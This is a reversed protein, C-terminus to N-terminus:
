KRGRGKGSTCEAVRKGNSYDLGGDCKESIHLDGGHQQAASKQIDTPYAKHLSELGWAAVVEKDEVKGWVRGDEGTRAFRSVTGKVVLAGIHIYGVVIVM